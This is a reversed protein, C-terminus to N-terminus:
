LWIRINRNNHKHREAVEHLLINMNIM